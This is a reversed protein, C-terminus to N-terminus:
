APEGTSTALELGLEAKNANEKEAEKEAILRKLMDRFAEAKPMKIEARAFLGTLLETATSGRGGFSNQMAIHKTRRGTHNGMSDRRWAKMKNKASRPMDIV